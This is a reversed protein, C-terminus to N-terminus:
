APLGQTMWRALQSLDLNGGSIVGVVKSGKLVPVEGSLMAAVPAAGAGEALLKCRSLLMLIAELLSAESVLLVDELHRQALALVNWLGPESRALAAFEIWDSEAARQECIRAVLEDVNAATM